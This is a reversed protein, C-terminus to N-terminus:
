WIALLVLIHLSDIWNYGGMKCRCGDLQLRYLIQVLRKYGSKRWERKWDHRTDFVIADFRIQFFFSGTRWKREIGRISNRLKRDPKIFRFRYQIDDKILIFLSRARTEARHYLTFTTMPGPEKTWRRGMVVRTREVNWQVFELPYRCVTFTNILKHTIVLIRHIRAM